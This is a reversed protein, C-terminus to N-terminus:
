TLRLSYLAQDIEGLMDDRISLLETAEQHLVNKNFSVLFRKYDQLKKRYDELSKCEYFPISQKGRGHHFLPTGTIAIYKEIFSDVLESMKEHLEDTAKHTPYSLTSWHYIKITNLMELFRLIYEASGGALGGPGGPGGPGGRGRKGGSMMMPDSSQEELESGQSIAAAGVLSGVLGLGTGTNNSVRSRSRRSRSRTDRSPRKKQNRNVRSSHAM